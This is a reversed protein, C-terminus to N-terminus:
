ENIEEGARGYLWGALWCDRQGETWGDMQGDMRLGERLTDDTLEQDRVLDPSQEEAM